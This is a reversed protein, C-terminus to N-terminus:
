LGLALLEDKDRFGAGAAIPERASQGFFAAATPDDGRGQDRLLGAVTDCRIPTSGDLHRAQPAGPVERRDRDWRDVVCSHTVQAARPFLRKMSELRGRTAEFGTQQPMSEARGTPGGPARRVQAPQALDDTGGGAWGM